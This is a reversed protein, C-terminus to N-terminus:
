SMMVQRLAEITIANQSIMRNVIYNITIVNENVENGLGPTLSLVKSTKSDFRWRDVVYPSPKM